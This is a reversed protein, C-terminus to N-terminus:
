GEEKKGLPDRGQFQLQVTVVRKTGSDAEKGSIDVCDFFDLTDMALLSEVDLSDEEPLHVTMFRRTGLGDKVYKGEMLDKFIFSEGGDKGWLFTWKVRTGTGASGSYQVKAGKKNLTCDGINEVEHGGDKPTPIGGAVNPIRLVALAEPNGSTWENRDRLIYWTKDAFDLM